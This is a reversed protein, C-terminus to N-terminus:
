TDKIIKANTLTTKTIANIVKGWFTIKKELYIIKLQIAAINTYQYIFRLPRVVKLTLWPM